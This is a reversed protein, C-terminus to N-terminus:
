FFGGEAGGRFGDERGGFVELEGAIFEGGVVDVAGELAVGRGRQGGAEGHDAAKVAQRVAGRIQNFGQLGNELEGRLGVLGAVVDDVKEKEISLRGLVIEDGGGLQVLIGRPIEGEANGSSQGFEVLFLWGFREGQKLAVGDRPVADAGAPLGDVGGRELGVTALFFGM